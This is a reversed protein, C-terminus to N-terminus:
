SDAPALKLPRATFRNFRWCLLSATVTLGMALGWWLGAGGMDYRFALLSGGGIGLIWYGFGAIWLPAINDKIGRLARAAIAQLGDFVQFIVSIMLFQAALKSVEAFGPDTAHIFIRIIQDAFGLPIIVMATLIGVGLTMGLRGARRVDLIQNRGVAHAVRIMTAEAMGLAIVFPIGVWAMVIEYAALTKAGIIGSLISAAVFMGAELLTLGAVPIGLRLIEACTPMHLRWGSRFIGYGRLRPKRYIHITLSVFMLWTVLSTALGAGFLGMAGLGFGGNVFWVTLLYNLLVASVTIVMIAAPKALAAIFSRFVAFWLLPLAVASLGQLYPITYEIVVPDQGTASLVLDLNWIFAMAPIGLLTAVIMGQRVSQGVRAKNGAGEAQAALVGIVSLLGMLIVLIQFSMDGAIGVAALQNYGLKGVVIKTTIFMAFEALYAASLPFAIKLFQRIETKLSPLLKTM